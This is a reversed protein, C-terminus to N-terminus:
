LLGEKAKERVPWDSELSEHPQLRGVRILYDTLSAGQERAWGIQAEHTQLASAPLEASFRALIALAVRGAAEADAAAEHAGTLAVEYHEAVLDLTRKGRRYRDVAKDLILPDIVPSPVLPALGHRVCENALLSFDFAANYAVVPIGVAFLRALTERVETVVEAAPRGEARARETTIGHVASAGAPIPIGPDALWSRASVVAGSRDLVGVHATVIRDRAVDVGTTELDFVGVTELWDPLM